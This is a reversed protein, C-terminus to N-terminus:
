MGWSLLVHRPPHSLYFIRDRISRPQGTFWWTRMLLCSSTTAFITRCALFFPHSIALSSRRYWCSPCSNMGCMTAFSEPHVVLRIRHVSKRSPYRSTLPAMTECSISRWDVLRRRAASGLQRCLQRFHPEEICREKMAFTQRLLRGDLVGLHCIQNTM